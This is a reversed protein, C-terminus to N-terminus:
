RLMRRALMVMLRGSMVMGGRMMVMLRGMVVIEALVVVRLLVCRCSIFMAIGGVFVGASCETM